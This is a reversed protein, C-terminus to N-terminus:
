TKNANFWCSTVEHHSTNMISVTFIKVQRCTAAGENTNAKPVPPVSKIEVHSQLVMKLLCHHPAYLSCSATRSIYLVIKSFQRSLDKQFSSLYM